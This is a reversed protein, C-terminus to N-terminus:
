VGSKKWIERIDKKQQLIWYLIGWQMHCISEEARLLGEEMLGSRHEAGFTHWLSAGQM